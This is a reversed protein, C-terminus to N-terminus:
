TGGRNQAIMTQIFTDRISIHRIFAKLIHLIIIIFRGTHLILYGYIGIWFSDPSIWISIPINSYGRRSIELPNKSCNLRRSNDCQGLM